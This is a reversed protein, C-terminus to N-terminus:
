ASSWRFIPHTKYICGRIRIISTGGRKRPQCPENQISNHKEPDVGHKSTACSAQVVRRRRLRRHGGWGPHRRPGNLRDSCLLVELKLFPRWVHVGTLLFLLLTSLMNELNVNRHRKPSGFLRSCIAGYSLYINYFSRHHMFCMCVVSSGENIAQRGAVGHGCHQPIYSRNKTYNDLVRRVTGYRVAGKRRRGHPHPRIKRLPAGAEARDPPQLFWGRDAPRFAVHAHM